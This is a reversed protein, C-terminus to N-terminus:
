QRNLTLRNGGEKFAKEVEKIIWPDLSHKRMLRTVLDNVINREQLQKLKISREANMQGFDGIQNKRRAFYPDTKSIEQLYGTLDFIKAFQWLAVPDTKDIGQNKAVQAFTNDTDLTRYMLAADIKHAVSEEMEDGGIRSYYAAEILAMKKVTSFFDHFPIQKNRLLKIVSIHNESSYSASAYARELVTSITMLHLKNIGHAYDQAWLNSKFLGILKNHHEDKGLIGDERFPQTVYPCSIVLSAAEELNKIRNKEDFSNKSIVHEFTNFVEKGVGHGFFIKTM